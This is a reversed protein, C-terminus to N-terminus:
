YNDIIVKYGDEFQVRWAPITTGQKAEEPNIDYIQMKPDFYYCLSIDTITKGYVEKMSLLALISKPASSIEIPITGIEKMNLWNREMELVGRDDLLINTFTSEIYNDNFVKTFELRYSDGSEKVFSVEMDSISIGKDSLFDRAINAAEEKSSISYIKEKPNAEYIVLKDNLITITEDLYSVVQLGEGKVEINGQGKFFNNNLNIPDQIEYEVVLGFLDETITPIETNVEISKGKLLQITNEIFDDKITADVQNENFFLVYGLLFNTLLLAIILITKAKSWDM